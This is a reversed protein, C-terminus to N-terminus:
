KTEYDITFHPDELFQTITPDDLSFLTQDYTVYPDFRFLFMRDFSDRRRPLRKPCRKLRRLRQM